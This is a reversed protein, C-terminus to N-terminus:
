MLGGYDLKSVGIGGGGVEVVVVGVGEGVGFGEGAGGEEGWVEVGRSEEGGEMVPM